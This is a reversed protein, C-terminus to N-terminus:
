TLREIESCLLTKKETVIDNSGNDSAGESRLLEAAYKSYSFPMLRSNVSPAVSQAKTWRECLRRFRSIRPLASLKVAYTCKKETVMDNRGDDSAGESGIEGTATVILISKVLDGDLHVTPIMNM